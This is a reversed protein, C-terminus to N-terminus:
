GCNFWDVNVKLGGVVFILRRLLLCSICGGSVVSFLSLISLWMLLMFMGM